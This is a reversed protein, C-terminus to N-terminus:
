NGKANEIEKQMHEIICKRGAESDVGYAYGIQVKDMLCISTEVFTGLICAEDKYTRFLNKVKDRFESNLAQLSEVFGNRMTLADKMGMGTFRKYVEKYAVVETREQKTM